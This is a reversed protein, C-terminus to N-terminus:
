EDEDEVDIDPEKEVEPLGQIMCLILVYVTASAAALLAQKWDVDTIIQGATWVGLITTLFTRILRILTAKWFEKTWITNMQTRREVM